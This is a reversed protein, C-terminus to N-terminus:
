LPSPGNPFPRSISAASRASCTTISGARPRGWPRTAASRRGPSPGCCAGDGHAVVREVRREFADDADPDHSEVAFYADFVTEFTVWEARSKALTSGLARRVIARESLSVADVARMADVHETIGVEVGASRLEEVFGSLVDIM